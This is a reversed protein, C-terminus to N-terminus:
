KCAENIRHVCVAIQTDNNMRTESLALAKAAEHIARRLRQSLQARSNGADYAQVLYERSKGMLEGATDLETTNVMGLLEQQKQTAATYATFTANIKGVISNLKSKEM